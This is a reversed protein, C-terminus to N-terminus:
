SFLYGVESNIATKKFTVLGKYGLFLGIVDHLHKGRELRGGDDRYKLCRM